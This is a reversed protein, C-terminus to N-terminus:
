PRSFLPFTYRGTFVESRHAMTPFSCLWFDAFYASEGALRDLHPTHVPQQNLFGLHDNRFSDACLVIVNM